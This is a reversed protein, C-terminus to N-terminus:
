KPIREKKRSVVMWEGHPAEKVEIEKEMIREKNKEKSKEEEQNPGPKETGLVLLIFMNISNCDYAFGGVEWNRAWM